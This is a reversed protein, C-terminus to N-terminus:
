LVDEKKTLVIQLIEEACNNFNLNKAKNYNCDNQKSLTEIIVNALKEPHVHPEVEVCFEKICQAVFNETTIVKKNLAILESICGSGEGHPDSRLQVAIDIQSMINYFEEISPDTISIINSQDIDKDVSNLYNKVGYGALVLKTNIGKKNMINIAEIVDNTSKLKHCIGFSGVIINGDRKVNYKNDFKININPIPISVVNINLDSLEIPTFEKEFCQFANETFVIFNKIGTLEIMIKVGYIGANKLSNYVDDNEIKVHKNYYKEVFKEIKYNDSLQFYDILMNMVFNEGLYLYRNDDGKTEIAKDVSYKHHPSNGVVFIKSDIKLKKILKKEFCSSFVNKNFNNLAFLCRFYHMFKNFETLIVFNSKKNFINLAFPAMGTRQPPMVSYVLIKSELNKSYFCFYQLLNLIYICYNVFKNKIIKIKRM